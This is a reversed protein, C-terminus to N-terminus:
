STMNHLAEQEYLQILEERLQNYSPTDEYHYIRNTLLIMAQKTTLNMLVTTGTFGTHRLWIQEGVRDMDWGLSRGAQRTPTWDKLLSQM